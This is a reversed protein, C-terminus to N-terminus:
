MVDRLWRTLYKVPTTGPHWVRTAFAVMGGRAFRLVRARRPRIEHPLTGEHHWFGYGRGLKVPGPNAGVHAELDGSQEHRDYHTGISAILEGTDFGASIRGLSEVRVAKDAMFQGTMGGWSQFAQYFGEEDPEFHGQSM